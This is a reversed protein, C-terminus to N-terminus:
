FLWRKNDRLRSEKIETYRQNAIKTREIGVVEQVDQMKVHSMLTKKMVAKTPIATHQHRSATVFGRADEAQVGRVPSILDGWCGRSVRCGTAARTEMAITERGIAGTATAALLVRKQFATYAAAAGTANVTQLPTM